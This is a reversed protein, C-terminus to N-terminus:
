EALIAEALRRIRDGSTDAAEFVDADPTVIPVSQGRKIGLTEMVIPDSGSACHLFYGIVQDAQSGRNLRGLVQAHVGPSWDLEGFVVVRCVKELGDLGIGSRLSMIMVQCRASVVFEKVARDKAAPSESGTYMVYDIHAKEFAEIWIDYVDRHWGCLLVKEESALLMKVFAAVFPAKAVGTARRVRWDLEGAATWRQDKTSAADLIIRAFAKAEDLDSDLSDDADILQPIRLPDEQNLGIDPGERGLLLREDRLFSGLAKPDNVRHKGNGMPTCREQFFEERTGLCDRQLIDLVNFMEDGYNYIPTTTLGMRFLCRDAIQGAADYKQSGARRLEQAEDFIVTRALGALHAAWAALKSYTIILVDPDRGKMERHAAPDYIKTVRIRHATLDFSEEVEEQWQTQLHAPCVVLAPLAEPHRLMLLGSFSKMGGLPDTLLLRGTTLALDAAELQHPKPERIPVREFDLRHGAMIRETIAQAERYADAKTTLRRGTVEDVDLPYRLLFWELDVATAPTDSLVITGERNPKVRGFVRKLLMTVHPECDLGWFGHGGDDTTYRIRGYTRM